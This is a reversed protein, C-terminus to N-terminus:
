FRRIMFLIYSKNKLQFACEGTFHSIRSFVRGLGKFYKTGLINKDGVAKSLYSCTKLLAFSYLSYLNITKLINTESYTMKPLIATDSACM